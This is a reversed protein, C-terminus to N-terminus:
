NRSAKEQVEGDLAGEIVALRQLFQARRSFEEVDEVSKISNTSAQLFMRLVVAILLVGDLGGVVRVFAREDATLPDETAGQRMKLVATGTVEAM